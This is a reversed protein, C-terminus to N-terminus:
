AAREPPELMEAIGTVVEKTIVCKKEKREPLEFQIDLMVEELIGRLSRAGTKKAVAQKAVEILADDEFSLEVGDVKFLVEYQKVLASKPETLVQVLQEASLDELTSIVPLRGVLEPILGFHIFDETTAQALLENKDTIEDGSSDPNTFGIRKDKGIRTKVIDELGGFAGGCIFLINTTDIQIFQQEPHKRGGQPPVNAVTGELMKLLAQQVGEGSVDRTISVNQSTKGIKDIEDIYVIGREAAEKDFDAARLLKLLMNEVDEGVYGAETVTTADCIAFPVGLADALTRALLTKGCGTPGAILINSKELNIESEEAIKSIRKYHNTVGVSLRKKAREQGIVEENLLDLVSRPTPIDKILSNRPKEKRSSDIVKKCAPLCEGCVFVGVPSSNDDIRSGNQQSGEGEVLPGVVDNKKLCFDCYREGVKGKQKSKRKRKEDDKNTEDTM